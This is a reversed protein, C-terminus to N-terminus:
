VESILGPNEELVDSVVEIVDAISFYSKDPLDDCIENVRKLYLFHLEQRNIKM